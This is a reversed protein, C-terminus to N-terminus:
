PVETLILGLDGIVFVHQPDSGWVGNWSAVTSPTQSQTWSTGDYFFLNGYDSGAWIHKADLGWIPGLDYKGPFSPLQTWSMGDWHLMTGTLCTLGMATCDATAWVDTPGSGWIGGIGKYTPLNTPTTTWSKGDYHLIVGADGILWVDDPGDTWVGGLDIPTDGDGVPAIGGDVLLTPVPVDVTVWGMGSDAGSYHMVLGQDGILWVDSTSSGYVAGLSLPTGSMMPTWSTGDYHLLTGGDGVVWIDNPAGGWIGNLDFMGVHQTTWKTGDYHLILGGDSVAWVDNAAFGFIGSGDVMSAVPSPTVTCWQAASGAAIPTCMPGGDSVPGTEVQAGTDTASADTGGDTM